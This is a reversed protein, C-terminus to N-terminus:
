YKLTQLVEESEAKKEDWVKILFDKHDEFAQAQEEVVQEAEISNM